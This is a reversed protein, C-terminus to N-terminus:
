SLKNTRVFLRVVARAELVNLALMGGVFATLMVLFNGGALLIGNGDPFAGGVMVMLVCVGLLRAIDAIPWVFRGWSILAIITVVFGVFSSVILQLALGYVSGSWVDRPLVSCILLTLISAVPGILAGESSGFVLFLPDLSYQRIAMIGMALAGSVAAAHFSERYIDPVVVNGIPEQLCSFIIIAPLVFCAISLIQYRVQSQIRDYGSFEIARIVNQVVIVNVASSVTAFMRQSLDIVFLVGGAEALGLGAVVVSRMAAPVAMALNTGVSAFAGFRFLFRFQKPDFHASRVIAKIDKIGIISSIPYALFLGILTADGTGFLLGCGVAGLMALAARVIVRVSYIANDMRARAVAQQGDFVGQFAAGILVIALSWLWSSITAMLACILASLLMAGFICIYSLALVGRRAESLAEDATYSYRIMGIRASEFAISSLLQAYGLVLSYVAYEKTVLFFPVLLSLIVGFLSGAITSISLSASSALRKQITFVGRM